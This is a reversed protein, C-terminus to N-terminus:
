PQFLKNKCICKWTLLYYTEEDQPTKLYVNAPSAIRRHPPVVLAAMCPRCSMCRNTCLPPRSGLAMKMPKTGEDDDGEKEAVKGGRVKM